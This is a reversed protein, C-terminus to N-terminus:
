FWRGLITGTGRTCGFGSQGTTAHYKTQLLIPIPPSLWAAGVHIGTTNKSNYLNFSSLCSLQFYRACVGWVGTSVFWCLCVCAAYTHMLLYLHVFVWVCEQWELSISKCVYVHLCILFWVFWEAKCMNSNWWPLIYETVCKRKIFCCVCVCLVFWVCM